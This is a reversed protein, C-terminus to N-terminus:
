PAARFVLFYQYPLFGHERELAYGAKRMEQMVQQPPVRGDRPPGVPSDMRFDIIAVRGGARLAGLLRRFYAERGGIHHYVDVLVVLDAKEPLKADEPSGAVALLNALGERKARGALYKVMDPEVDVGYVRGRPVSRAFRVAFYGTGAGIDAILADASPALAGIVEQPKQWADRKPDDFEKAWREADSFRHEHSHPSQAPAPGAAFVAM